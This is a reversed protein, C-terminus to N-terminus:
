LAHIEAARRDLITAMRCSHNKSHSELSPARLGQVDQFASTHPATIILRRDQTYKPFNSNFDWGRVKQRKLLHEDEPRTAKSAGPAGDHPQAFPGFLTDGDHGGNSGRTHSADEKSESHGDIIGM